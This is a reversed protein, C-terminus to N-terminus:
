RVGMLLRSLFAPMRQQQMYPNEARIIPKGGVSTGPVFQPRPVEKGLLAGAVPAAAMAGLGAYDMWNSGERPMRKLIGADYMYPIPSSYPLGPMFPNYRNSM